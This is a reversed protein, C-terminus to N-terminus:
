FAPGQWPGCWEPEGHGCAGHYHCQFCDQPGGCTDHAFTHCSECFDQECFNEVSPGCGDVINNNVKKRLLYSSSRESVLVTGHPEHCDMCSLVYNSANSDHYPNIITGSRTNGTGDVDYIRSGEGHMDGLSTWDIATLYGTTTNPNMSTTRTSQVEYQHCDLCFTNYDPMSSGNHVASGDPEYTATSNYYPPLYTTYRSMKESSDVSDGWLNEHDFPRSIATYAPDTRYAKNRRARHPNHCAVCPNSSDKFFDFREKAFRRIDYLNHYSGNPQDSSLNFAELIGMSLAPSYSGFTASYENNTIGGDQLYGVNAHCYFCFNDDQSYPGTTAATDFNRAFVCSAGMGGYPEPQSGAIMAHQEHCHACNGTAYQLTSTRKVGHASNGHASDLYPGAYALAGGWFVLTMLCASVNKM